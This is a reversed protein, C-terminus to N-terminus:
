EIISNSFHGLVHFRKRNLQKDVKELARDLLVYLSYCFYVDLQNQFKHKERIDRSGSSIYFRKKCRNKYILNRDATMVIILLDSVKRTLIYSKLLANIQHFFPNKM